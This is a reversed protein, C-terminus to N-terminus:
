VVRVAPHGGQQLRSQAALPSNRRMAWRLGRVEPVCRATRGLITVMARRRAASRGAVDQVVRRTSPTIVACRREDTSPTGPLRATYAGSGRRTARPLAERGAVTRRTWRAASAPRSARDGGDSSCPPGSATSVPMSAPGCGRRGTATRDGSRGICRAEDGCPLSWSRWHTGPHRRRASGGGAAHRRAAMRAAIGSAGTGRATTSPARRRRFAGRCAASNSGVGTWRPSRCPRALQPASSSAARLLRPVRSAARPDESVHAGTDARGGLDLPWSPQRRLRIQRLRPPVGGDVVEVTPKRPM